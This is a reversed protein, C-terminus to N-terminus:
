REGCNGMYEGMGGQNPVLVLKQCGRFADVINLYLATQFVANQIFMQPEVASM